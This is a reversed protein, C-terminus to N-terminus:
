LLDWWRPVIKVSDIGSTFSVKNQGPVLVPFQGDMLTVLSNLNTNKDISYADQVDCDIVIGDRPISSLLLRRDGVTVYGSSGKVTILPKSEMGSNVLVQGNQIDIGFEGSKRFWQPKCDFSISARKLVQMRNDVNSKGTYYAMRYHEPHFSDELRRYGQKYLWESIRADRQVYRWHVTYSQTYNRYTGYDYLLDGDRGPVSQTQVDKQPMYSQPYSEVTLGIDRSSIGDFKLECENVGM